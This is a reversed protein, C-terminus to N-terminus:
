GNIDASVFPRAFGFRFPEHVVEIKRVFHFVFRSM